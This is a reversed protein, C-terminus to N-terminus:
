NVAKRSTDYMYTIISKEDFDDYKLTILWKLGFEFKYGM